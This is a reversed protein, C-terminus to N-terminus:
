DDARVLKSVVLQEGEPADDTLSELPPLRELMQELWLTQEPSLGVFRLAVGELDERLVEADFILPEERQSRYLAISIRAGVALAPDREVRIGTMSLDRGILVDAADAHLAVLRRAFQRRDHTRRQLPNGTPDAYPRTRRGEPGPLQPETEGNPIPSPVEAPREPVPELPTIRTGLDGGGLISEIQAEADPELDRFVVIVSFGEGGSREPEPSCHAVYGSLAREEGRALEPPLYVLASAGVNAEEATVLRCGGRSLEELRGKARNEALTCNLECDIPLRVNLRREGGRHLLQLFFLRMVERDLQSHILYHFGLEKLRRRMPLFDQTHACVWIPQGAEEGAADLQPMQQARRASTVLLHSPRPVGEEAAPGTRYEFSVRLRELVYRVRILEGDDILLISPARTM